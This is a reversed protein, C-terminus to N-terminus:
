NGGDVRGNQLLLGRTGLLLQFLQFCERKLLPPTGKRLRQVVTRQLSFLLLWEGFSIFSELSICIAEAVHNLFFVRSIFFSQFAVFNLGHTQFLSVCIKISIGGSIEIHSCCKPNSLISDSTFNLTGIRM